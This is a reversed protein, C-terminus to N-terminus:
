IKLIYGLSTDMPSRLIKWGWDKNFTLGSVAALKCLINFKEENNLNVNAFWGNSLSILNSSQEALHPSGFFIKKKDRGFYLRQSGKAVFYTEWSVTDFVEPHVKIFNEIMWGYAKKASSFIRKEDNFLVETPTAGGLPGNVNWGRRRFEQQIINIFEIEGKNTAKLLLIDLEKRSRKSSQVIEKFKSIEM